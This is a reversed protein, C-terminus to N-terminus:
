RTQFDVSDLMLCIVHPPLHKALQTIPDSADLAMFDLLVARQEDAMKQGLLRIALKDLWNGATQGAKTPAIQDVSPDEFGTLWGYFLIRHMNWRALISGANLWQAAVDPFGDPPSWFYPAHGAEKLLHYYDQMAKEPDQGLGIDFVRAAGVMDELPRRVKTGQAEWFDTSRFVAEIIARISTGNTLYAESLRNLLDESPTDSVFRTAFKRSLLRATMPHSALYKLYADGVELGGAGTPNAHSFGLVRVNGTYHIAANYEFATPSETTSRGTLIYASNRVDDETYGGAVGVTHLELLERGLNENVADKTSLDNNLYQLLAPHRYAYLLMDTYSGLAHKRIVQAIYDPASDWSESPLAVHLHDGLVDVVVEFLQRTSFIQRGMTAKATQYMAEWGFQETNAAVYDASAGAAPFLGWARDGEPDDLSAPDLQEALWADIGLKRLRAVDSPRPGFTARRLLHAEPDPDFISAAPTAAKAAASFTEYQKGTVTVPSASVGPSTESPTTAGEPPTAPSQDSRQAAIVAAAGGVGAFGLAAALLSGRRIRAPQPTDTQDTPPEGEPRIDGAEGFEVESM